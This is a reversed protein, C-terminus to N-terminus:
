VAGPGKKAGDNGIGRSLRLNALISHLLRSLSHVMYVCPRRKSSPTCGFTTFAPVQLVLKPPPASMDRPARNRYPASHRVGVLRTCCAWRKCPKQVAREMGLSGVHGRYTGSVSLRLRLLAQFAHASNVSPQSVSAPQIRIKCRQPPRPPRTFKSQM